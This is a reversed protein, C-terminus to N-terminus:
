PLDIELKISFYNENSNLKMKDPADIVKIGKAIDSLKFLGVINIGNFTSILFNLEIKCKEEFLQFLYIWKIQYLIKQKMIM